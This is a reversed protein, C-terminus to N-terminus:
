LLGFKLLQVGILFRYLIEKIAGLNLDESPKGVLVPIIGSIDLESNNELSRM